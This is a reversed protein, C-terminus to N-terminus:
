KKGNEEKTESREEKWKGRVEKRKGEGRVYHRM